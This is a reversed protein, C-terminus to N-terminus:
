RTCNSVLMNNFFCMPLDNFPDISIEIVFPPSNTMGDFTVVHFLRPELSIGPFFNVYTITELVSEYLSLNGVGSITLTLNQMTSQIDVNLGTDGSNAELMDYPYDLGSVIFITVRELLDGDFDTITDQPFDFLNIPLRISENFTLSKNVFNFLVPDNTPQIEVVTIATASLGDNDIIEFQIICTVNGPEDAVNQFFIESLVSQYFEQLAMNSLQIYQDDAIVNIGYSVALAM